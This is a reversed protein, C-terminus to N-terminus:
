PADPDYLVLVVIKWGSDTQHLVYTVGVRDLEEDGAKRRIAIGRATAATASLATFQQQSLESREFGRARLDDM